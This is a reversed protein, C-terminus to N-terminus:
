VAPKTISDPYTASAIVVGNTPIKLSLVFVLIPFLYGHYMAPVIRTIGEKKAM